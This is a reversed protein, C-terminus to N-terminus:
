NTRRRRKTHKHVKFYTLIYIYTVKLVHQNQLAQKLVIIANYSTQTFVPANDNIDRVKIMVKCRGIIGLYFGIM